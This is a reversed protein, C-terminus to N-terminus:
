MSYYGKYACHRVQYKQVQLNLHYEWQFHILASLYTIFHSVSDNSVKAREEMVLIPLSVRVTLVEKLTTACLMRMVTICDLIVSM